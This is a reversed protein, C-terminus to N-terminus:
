VRVLDEIQLLGRDPREDCADAVQDRGLERGAEIRRPVEREARDAIAEEKRHDRREVHPV